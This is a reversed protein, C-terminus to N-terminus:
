SSARRLPILTARGSTILAKARQVTWQPTRLLPRPPKNNMRASFEESVEIDEAIADFAEPPDTALYLVDVLKKSRRGHYFGWRENSTMLYHDGRLATRVYGVARGLGVQTLQFTWGGRGQVETKELVEWKGLIVLRSPPRLAELRKTRETALIELTRGLLRLVGIDRDIRARTWHLARKAVSRVETTDDALYGNAFKVLWPRSKDLWARAAAPDPLRQLLEAQVLALAQDVLPDQALTM